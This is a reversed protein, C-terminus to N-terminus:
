AEAYCHVVHHSVVGLSKRVREGSTTRFDCWYTDGRLKIM